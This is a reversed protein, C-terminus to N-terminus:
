DGSALAARVLDDVNMNKIADSHDAGNQGTPGNTHVGNANGDPTALEYGFGAVLQALHASLEIWGDWLQQGRLAQEAADLCRGKHVHMAGATRPLETRVCVLAAMTADAIVGQCADCFIAHVLRDGETTIRIAM